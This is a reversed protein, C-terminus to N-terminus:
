LGHDVLSAAPIRIYVGAFRRFQKWAATGSHIHRRQLQRTVATYITTYVMASAFM